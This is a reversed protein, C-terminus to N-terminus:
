SNKKQLIEPSAQCRVDSMERTLLWLVLTTYPRTERLDVTLQLSFIAIHLYSFGGQTFEGLLCIGSQNLIATFGGM